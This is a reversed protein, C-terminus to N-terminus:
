WNQAQLNGYNRRRHQTGGAQGDVQFDLRCPPIRMDEFSGLAFPDSPWRGSGMAVPWALMPSKVGNLPWTRWSKAWGIALRGATSDVAGFASVKSLASRRRQSSAVQRARGNAAATKMATQNNKGGAFAVTDAFTSM